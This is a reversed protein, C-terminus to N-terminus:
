LKPVVIVRNECMMVLDLAIMGLKKAYQGMIVNSYYHAMASKKDYVCVAKIEKHLANYKRVESNEFTIIAVYLCLRKKCEKIVRNVNFVYHSNNIPKVFFFHRDGIDEYCSIHVPNPYKPNEEIWSKFTSAYKTIVATM